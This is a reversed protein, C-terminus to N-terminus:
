RVPIRADARAFNGGGDMTGFHLRLEGAPLQRPLRVSIKVKEGAAEHRRGWVVSDGASCYLVSAALRKDDRVEAAVEFARAGAALEAPCTLTIEPPANDSRDANPDLCRANALMAANEPSFGVDTREAGALRLYNGRLRRFGNGMIYADGRRTDHWLGLAHGMEHAVAGMGDEIFEYRPSDGAAAGLAKRGPIPTEDALYELQGPITEACFEDRLIWASFLGVGTHLGTKGGLAVGGPWEFAHPGPDYTEAFITHMRKGVGGVAASVEPLITRWQNRFSYRPGNNYHSAARKGRVLHVVLRANADFEFDLRRGRFGEAALSTRYLDNVFAMVVSIKARWARVPDRDAPVFYVLRVKEARGLDTLPAPRRRLAPGSEGGATVALLAIWAPILLQSRM